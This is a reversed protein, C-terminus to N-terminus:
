SFDAQEQPFSFKQGVIVFDRGNTQLEQPKYDACEPLVFTKM